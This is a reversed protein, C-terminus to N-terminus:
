FEPVCVCCRTDVVTFVSRVARAVTIGVVCFTVCRLAVDVVRAAVFVVDVRAAVVRVAAFVVDARVARLVVGVDGRAAVVDATVVRAAEFM